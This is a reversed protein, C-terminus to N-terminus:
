PHDAVIDKLYDPDKMMEALGRALDFLRDWAKEFKEASQKATTRKTSLEDAAELLEKAAKKLEQADKLVGTGAAAKALEDIGDQLNRASQVVDDVDNGIDGKLNGWITQASIAETESTKAETEFVKIAADIAKQTNPFPGKKGVAKIEKDLATAVDKGAAQLTAPAEPLKANAVAELATTLKQADAKAKTLKDKLKSKAVAAMRQQIPVRKGLAKVSKDQADLDSGLSALAKKDFKAFNDALINGM